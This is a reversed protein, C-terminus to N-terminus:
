HCHGLVMLGPALTGHTKPYFINKAYRGVFNCLLFYAYFHPLLLHLINATLVKM